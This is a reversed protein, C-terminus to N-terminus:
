PCCIREMKNLKSHVSVDGGVNVLQGPLRPLLYVVDVDIVTVQDVGVAESLLPM